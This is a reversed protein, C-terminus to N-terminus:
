SQAPQIPHLFTVIYDIYGTFHIVESQTGGIAGGCIHYLGQETCDAGTTGLLNAVQLPASVNFYKRTSFKKTLRVPRTSPVLVKEVKDAYEVVASQATIAATSDKTVIAVRCAKGTSDGDLFYFDAVCRSGLVCFHRYLAMYQDFGRPQLGGAGAYPDYVSNARYVYGQVAGNTSTIVHGQGENFGYRLKVTLRGPATASMFTLPLKPRIVVRGAIPGKKRRTTTHVVPTRRVPNRRTM